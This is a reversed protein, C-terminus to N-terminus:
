KYGTVDNLFNEYAANLDNMTRGSGKYEKRIMGGDVKKVFFITPFGKIHNKQYYEDTVQSEEHEFIPYKTKVRSEAHETKMRRCHGCWNATFLHIGPTGMHHDFDDSGCSACPGEAAIVLSSEYSM